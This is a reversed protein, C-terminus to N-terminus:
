TKKRAKSHTRATHSYAAGAAAVNAASPLQCTTPMQQFVGFRKIVRIVANLPVVRTSTCINTSRQRYAPVWLWTPRSNSKSNDCRNQFHKAAKRTHM